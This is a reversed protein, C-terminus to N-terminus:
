LKRPEAVGEEQDKRLQIRWASAEEDVDQNAVEMISVKRGAKCTQELNM